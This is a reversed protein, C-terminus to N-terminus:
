GSSAVLQPSLDSGPSQRLARRPTSVLEATVDILEFPSEYQHGELKRLIKVAIEEDISAPNLIDAVEDSVYETVSERQESLHDVLARRGALTERLAGAVQRNADCPTTPAIQTLDTADPAKGNGNGNRTTPAFGKGRSAAQKLVIAEEDTYSAKFEIQSKQTLGKFQNANLGLESMLTEKAPM